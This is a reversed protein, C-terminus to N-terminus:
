RGLAEYLGLVLVGVSAVAALSQLPRRAPPPCATLVKDPQEGSALEWEEGMPHPLIAM